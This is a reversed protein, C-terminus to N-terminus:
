KAVNATIKSTTACPEQFKMWVNGEKTIKNM